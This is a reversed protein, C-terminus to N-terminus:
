FIMAPFIFDIVSLRHEEVELKGDTWNIKALDQYRNRLSRNPEEKRIMYIGRFKLRDKLKQLEKSNDNRLSVKGTGLATGNL